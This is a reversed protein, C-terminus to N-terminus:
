LSMGKKYLFGDSLRKFKDYGKNYDNNKQIDNIDIMWLTSWLEDYNKNIINRKEDLTFKDILIQIYDINFVDYKGRIFEIYCLSDKRQIM